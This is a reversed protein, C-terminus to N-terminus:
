VKTEHSQSLAQQKLVEPDVPKLIKRRKEIELTLAIRDHSIANIFKYIM